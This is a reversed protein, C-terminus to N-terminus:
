LLCFIYKIILFKRILTFFLPSVSLCIKTAIRLM